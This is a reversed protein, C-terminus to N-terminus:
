HYMKDFDNDMFTYNFPVGQREAHYKSEVQRVLNFADNARFRVAMNSFNIMNVMMALPQIKDHMSNYNFDKVVGIVHFAQPRFHAMSDTADPHLEDARNYILFNLPNKGGLQAVAAENLIIGTSD